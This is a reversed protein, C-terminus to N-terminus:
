QRSLLLHELHAQAAENLALYDTLLTRIALLLTKASTWADSKVQASPAERTQAALIRTKASLVDLLHLKDLDKLDQSREVWDNVWLALETSFIRAKEPPVLDWVGLAADMDRLCNHTMELLQARVANDM